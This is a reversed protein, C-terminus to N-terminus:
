PWSTEGHIDFEDTRDRARTSEICPSGIITPERKQTFPNCPMRAAANLAFGM